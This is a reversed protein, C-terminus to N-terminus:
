KMYEEILAKRAATLNKGSQSLIENRTRDDINPDSCIELVRGHAIAAKEVESVLALRALRKENEEKFKAYVSKPCFLKRWTEISIKNREDLYFIDSAVEHAGPKFVYVTYIYDKGDSATIVPGPEVLTKRELPTKMCSGISVLKRLSEKKIANLYSGDSVFYKM